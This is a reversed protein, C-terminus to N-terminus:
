PSGLKHRKHERQERQEEEPGRGRRQDELTVGSERRGRRVVCTYKM